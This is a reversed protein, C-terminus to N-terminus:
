IYLKEGKRTFTYSKSLNFSIGQGEQLQPLFESPVFAKIDGKKTKIIVSIYHGLLMITFVIGEHLGNGRFDLNVDEPRFAIDNYGNEIFNMEGILSAVYKNAPNEYIEHPTGLQVISGKSMVVIRHSLAMAEEQDHTVYIITTKLLSQIRKLEERLEMRVKADLTSFPEDMLLVSPKLLLARAIAVKQLVDAALDDPYADEMGSLGILELMAEIDRVIALQPIKRLKLGFALNDYVTMHPWLNDEQFIMATPRKAAPIATVDVGDIFISGETVEHFGGLARLITTKGCGSPGLISLLEGDYVDLNIGSVGAGSEYVKSMNTIKLKIKETM